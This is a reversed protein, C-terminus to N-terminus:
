DSSYQTIYIRAKILDIESDWLRTNLWINIAAGNRSSKGILDMQKVMINTFHFSQLYYFSYNNSNTQSTRDFSYQLDSISILLRLLGRHEAWTWGADWSRWSHKRRKKIEKRERERERKKERSENANRTWQACFLRMFPLEVIPSRRDPQIKSYLWHERVGARRTWGGPSYSKSNFTFEGISRRIYSAADSGTEPYPVIRWETLRVQLQFQM